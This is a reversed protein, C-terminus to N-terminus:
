IVQYYLVTTDHVVPKRKEHGMLQIFLMGGWCNGGRSANRRPLFFGPASPKKERRISPKESKIGTTNGQLVKKEVVRVRDVHTHDGHAGHPRFM